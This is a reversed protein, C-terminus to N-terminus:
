NFTDSRSQCGSFGYEIMINNHESTGLIAEWVRLGKSKAFNIYDLKSEIASVLEENTTNIGNCDYLCYVINGLCNVSSIINIYNSQTSVNDVYSLMINPENARIYFLSKLSISNIITCGLVGYKKVLSIVKPAVIDKIGEDRITIYLLKGYKKAVKIMDELTAPHPHVDDVLLAYELSLVDETTMENIPIYDSQNFTTIRGNSDLTFGKDHCMILDGDSTYRVDGKIGTFGQNAAYEYAGKTNPPYGGYANSYAIKILGKDDFRGRLLDTYNVMDVANGNFSFDKTLYPVYDTSFDTDNLRILMLNDSITKNKEISDEGLQIRFGKCSSAMENTIYITPVIDSIVTKYLYTENTGYFAISTLKDESSMIKGNYVFVFVDGNRLEPFDIINTACGTDSHVLNGSGSIARGEVLESKDYYNIYKDTLFTTMEESIAKKENKRVFVSEFNILVDVKVDVLCTFRVYNYNTNSFVISTASSYSIRNVGNKDVDYFFMAFAGNSQITKGNLEETNIYEETRISNADNKEVGMSSSSTYFAGSEWSIDKTTYGSEIRHILDGKLESIQGRVAAGATEYTTGDAGVRIDILEADGATSGEPLSTFTNMRATLANDATQRAAAEDNIIESLAKNDNDSIASLKTRPYLANTKEKDSYFTVVQSM